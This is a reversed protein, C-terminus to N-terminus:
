RRLWREGMKELTAEDLKAQDYDGAVRRQRLAEYLAVACALSVNLSEVMVMMPIAIVGDALRRAEESVGRLENGFVLATPPRLDVDYLNIAVPGLGTALIRFGQRRLDEYCEGVSAHFHHEVWKAASASTTRAFVDPPEEVTYVLNIGLVGFADCSRLVAGVNHPDHVNELVVTLDPQRRALVAAVREQRRETRPWKTAKVPQGKPLERRDAAEIEPVKEGGKGGEIEASVVSM